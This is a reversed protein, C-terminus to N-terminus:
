GGILNHLQLIAGSTKPLFYSSGSVVVELNIFPKGSEFDFRFGHNGSGAGISLLDERYDAALVAACKQGDIYLELTVPDNGNTKCCWGSVKGHGIHDIWGSFYKDQDDSEIIHKHTRLIAQRKMSINPKINIFSCLFDFFSELRAKTIERDICLISINLTSIQQIIGAYESATDLLERIEAYNNDKHLHAFKQAPSSICIVANIERLLRLRELDSLDSYLFYFVPFKVTLDSMKSSNLNGQLSASLLKELIESDLDIESNTIDIFYGGLAQLAKTIFNGDIDLRTIVLPVASIGHRVSQNNRFIVNGSDVITIRESNPHRPRSSAALNQKPGLLFSTDCGLASLSLSFGPIHEARQPEFQAMYEQESMKLYPVLHFGPGKEYELKQLDEANTVDVWPKLKDRSHQLVTEFPKYHCHIYILDTREVDFSKLNGHLHSGHDLTGICNKTFIVKSYPAKRFYAPFGLVNSYNTTVHFIAKKDKISFIYKLIENKEVTPISDIEVAVFEDCDLPFYIDYPKAEDSNLARIKETLIEGKKPYDTASDFQRSVSVGRAEYRSLVDIVSPDDSGNDFVYLNDFGFLDGHYILWPELLGFENKQMMLCAVM